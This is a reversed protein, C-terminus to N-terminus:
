CTQEGERSLKVTVSFTNTTNFFRMERATVCMGVTVTTGAGVVTDGACNRCLEIEAGSGGVDTVEFNFDCCPEGPPDYEDKQLIQVYNYPNCFESDFTQESGDFVITGTGCYLIVDPDCPFCDSCDYTDGQGQVLTFLLNLTDTNMLVMAITKLALGLLTSVSLAAIIADIADSLLGIITETNNNQILICVLEAKNAEIGDALAQLGARLGVVGIAAAILIPILFVPLVILDALALLVITILGVSQAFSIYSLNRITAAWGDVMAAATRCKDADYEELTGPYDTPVEGEPLEAPPVSGYVPQTTGEPTTIVVQIGGNPPPGNSCCQTQILLTMAQILTGLSADNCAMIAEKLNFNYDYIPKFKERLELFNGTSFDWFRGQNPDELLGYLIAKWKDSDPWCVAWRCTSVGDWDDPIPMEM